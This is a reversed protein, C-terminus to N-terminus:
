CIYQMYTNPVGKAFSSPELEIKLGKEVLSINM